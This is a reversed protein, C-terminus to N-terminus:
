SRSPPAGSSPTFPVTSMVWPLAFRRIIPKATSTVAAAARARIGSLMAAARAAAGGDTESPPEPASGPASTASGSGVRAGTGAIADPGGSGVPHAVRDVLLSRGGAVHPADVFGLAFPTLESERRTNSASKPSRM